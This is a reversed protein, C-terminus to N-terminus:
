IIREPYKPLDKWLFVGVTRSESMYFISIGLISNRLNVTDYGIFIQLLFKDSICFGYCRFKIDRGYFYIGCLYLTGADYM